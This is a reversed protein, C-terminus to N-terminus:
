IEFNNSFTISQYHGVPWNQRLPWSWIIPWLSYPLLLCPARNTLQLYSQAICASIQFKISLMAETLIGLILGSVLTSIMLIRLDLDGASTASM